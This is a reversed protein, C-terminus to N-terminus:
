CAGFKLETYEAYGTDTEHIRVAEIEIGRLEENEYIKKWIIEYFYKAMNEATPNFPVVVIGLDSCATGFNPIEKADADESSIVFKHDFRELDNKLLDKVMGFDVVMGDENLEESCLILELKYSHGHIKQCSKSYSSTLRHAAEFKFLKRIKYM